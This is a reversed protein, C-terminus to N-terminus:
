ADEDSEKEAIIKLNFETYGSISAIYRNELFISFYYLNLQLSTTTPNNISPTLSSM